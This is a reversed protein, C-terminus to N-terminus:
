NQLIQRKQMRTPEKEDLVIDDSLDDDLVDDEKDVDSEVSDTLTTDTKSDQAQCGMVFFLLLLMGFLVYMKKM